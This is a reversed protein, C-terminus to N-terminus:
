QKFLKKLRTSNAETSIIVKELPYESSYGNNANNTKEDKPYLQLFMKSEEFKDLHSFIKKAEEKKNIFHYQFGLVFQLLLNGKDQDCAAELNKLTNHLLPENSLYLKKPDFPMTPFQPFYQLGLRLYKGCEEFKEQGFLAYALGLVAMRSLGHMETFSEITTEILLETGERYAEEAQSWM